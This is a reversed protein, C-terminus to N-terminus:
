RLIIPVIAAVVFLAIGAVINAGSGEFARRKHVEQLHGVERDTFCYANAAQVIGMWFKYLGFMALSPAVAAMVRFYVGWTWPYLEIRWVASNFEGLVWAFFSIAAINLFLWSLAIRIVAKWGKDECISAYAFAGWRPQVNAVTGWSIAYFLTFVQQALTAEM